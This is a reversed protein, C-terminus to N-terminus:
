FCVGNTANKHYIKVRGSQRIIQRRGGKVPAISRASDKIRMLNVAHKRRKVNLHEDLILAFPTHMKGPSEM